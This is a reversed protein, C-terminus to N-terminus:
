VMYTFGAFSDGSNISPGADYPVERLFDADINSASNSSQANSQRIADNSEHSKTLVSVNSSSSLSCVAFSAIFVLFEFCYFTGFAFRVFPPIDAFSQEEDPM